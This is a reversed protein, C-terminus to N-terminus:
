GYAKATRGFNINELKKFLPDKAGTRFRAHPIQHARCVCRELTLPVIPSHLRAHTPHARSADVQAGRPVRPLQQVIRM